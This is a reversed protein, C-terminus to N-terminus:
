IYQIISHSAPLPSSNWRRAGQVQFFRESTGYSVAPLIIEPQIGRSSPRPIHEKFFDALYTLERMPRIEYLLLATYYSRRSDSRLWGLRKWYPTIYADRRVGFIYRVGINCLRDLRTRQENTAVLYVVTCYDLHPQVLSEVLRKRLTKTTCARIFRLTYM